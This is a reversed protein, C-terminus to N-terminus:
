ANFLQISFRNLARVTRVLHGNGIRLRIGFVQAQQFAPQTGIVDFFEEILMATGPRFNECLTWLSVITHATVRMGKPALYSSIEVKDIDKLKLHGNLTNALTFCTRELIAEDTADLLYALIQPIDDLAVWMSETDEARVLQFGVFQTRHEIHRLAVVLPRNGRM